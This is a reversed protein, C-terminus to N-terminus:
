DQHFTRQSKKREEWITRFPLQTRMIEVMLNKKVQLTTRPRLYRLSKKAQKRTLHNFERSLLLLKRLRKLQSKRSLHSQHLSQKLQQKVTVGLV